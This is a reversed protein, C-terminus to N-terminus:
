IVLPLFHSGPIAGGITGLFVRVRIRQAHRTTAAEFIEGYPGLGEAAKLDFPIACDAGPKALSMGVFLDNAKLKRRSLKPVEATM